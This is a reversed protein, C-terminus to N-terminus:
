PAAGRAPRATPPGSVPARAPGARARAVADGLRALKPRVAAVIEFDGAGLDTCAILRAGNASAIHGAATCAVDGRVAAGAAALSALDAATRARASAQQAGALVVVSGFLLMAVSLAGLVLVTGSGRERDVPNM